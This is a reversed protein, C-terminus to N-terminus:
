ETTRLGHIIDEMTDTDLSLKFVKEIAAKTTKKILKDEDGTNCKDIESVHILKTLEGTDLNIYNVDIACEKINAFKKTISTVAVFHGKADINSQQRENDMVTNLCELIDNIKM